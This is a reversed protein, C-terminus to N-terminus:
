SQTVVGAPSITITRQHGGRLQLVVTHAPVGTPLMGTLRVFTVTGTGSTIDVGDPLDVTQEDTTLGTVTDARFITYQDADFRVGHHANGVSAVALGQTQRLRSIVEGATGSLNANQRLSQMAPIGTGLLITAVGIVTMLEVLTFGPRRM